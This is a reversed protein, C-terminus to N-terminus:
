GGEHLGAAGNGMFLPLLVYQVIGTRNAPNPGSQHQSFYNSNGYLTVGPRQAERSSRKVNIMHMVRLTGESSVSVKTLVHEQNGHHRHDGFSSSSPSPTAALTKRLRKFSYAHCVVDSACQLGSVESEPLKVSLSGAGTSLFQVQPPDRTVMLRVSGGPWELDEVAERLLSSPVHFSTDPGQWTELWDVTEPPDSQVGLKAYTNVVVGAGRGDDGLNEDDANHTGMAEADTVLTSTTEIQLQREERPDFSIVMGESAGLGSAFLSLTDALQVLGVGFTVRRDELEHHVYIDSFSDRRIMIQSQLSKTEDDWQIHAGETSLCVSCVVRTSPAGTSGNQGSVAKSSVSAAATKLAHLAGLLSRANDCSLQVRPRGHSRGDLGEPTLFVM